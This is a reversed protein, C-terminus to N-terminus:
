TQANLVKSSTKFNPDKMPSKTKATKKIVWSESKEQTEKM